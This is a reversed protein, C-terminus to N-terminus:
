LIWLNKHNWFYGKSYWMQLVYVRQPFVLGNQQFFSTKELNLVKKNTDLLFLRRGYNFQM